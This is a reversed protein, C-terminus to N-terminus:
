LQRWSAFARYVATINGLVAFVTLLWDFTTLSLFTAGHVGNVPSSLFYQILLAALMLVLRDARGLAGGYNRKLGVAQAQTGLYSTMFVGVLALMGIVVSTTFISFTFGLLLGIDSYRDLVHDLFDGKKDSRRNLRAVAGDLADLFGSAAIMILAALLLFPLRTSSLLIAVSAAVALIFSIWTLLDPNVKKLKRALPNLLKEAGKRGRDLVM